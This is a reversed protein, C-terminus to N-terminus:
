REALTIARKWFRQVEDTTRLIPGNLFPRVSRNYSDLSLPTLIVRGHETHLVVQGIDAHQELVGENDDPIELQFGRDNAARVEIGGKCYSLMAAPALTAMGPELKRLDTLEYVLDTKIM